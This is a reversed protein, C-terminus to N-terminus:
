SPLLTTGSHGTYGHAPNKIHLFEHRNIFLVGTSVLTVAGRALDTAVIIKKRDFRDTIVGSPLTFLLWPLQSMLGVIAITLPSRTLASALWPFAIASVGNGVNSIATASWLKWYNLPLRGKSM